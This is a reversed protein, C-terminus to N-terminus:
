NYIIHCIGLILIVWRDKEDIISGTSVLAKLKIQNYTSAFDSDFSM